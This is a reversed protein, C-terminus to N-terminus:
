QMLVMVPIKGRGSSLSGLAKGIITGGAQGRDLVKQAHGKTPSTTLLDGARIPAIDADVKCHAYAGLTVMRGLQGEGVSTSGDGADDDGALDQLPHGAEGETAKKKGRKPKPSEQAEAHPLDGGRTVSDVIGCVRTDYARDCLDVEPIPITNGTAWFRTADSEGIIVVDGQEVEDGAMNVFHDYVYGPKAGSRIRLNNVDMDGKPTITVIDGVAETWLRANGDQNYWVYRDGAALANMDQNAPLTRRAFSIEAGSGSAEIRGVIDGARPLPGVAIRTAVHFQVAPDIGIGTRGGGRNIVVDNGLENIRLPKSGHSQVWSYETNYGLRLNSANTPGLILTNGGSDQPGNIVQLKAEPTTTAIGVRGDRLVNFADSAGAVWLALRGGGRNCLEVRNDIGDKTAVRLFANDSTSEFLGVAGDTRVHLVHTPANTGIGVPGGVLWSNGATSLRVAAPDGQHGIEFSHEGASNHTQWRLMGDAPSWLKKDAANQNAFGIGDTINLQQQMKDTGIAVRGDKYAIGGAVGVWPSPTGAQVVAAGAASTIKGDVVLDGAVHLRAQPNPTGLGVRGTGDQVMFHVARGDGLWFDRHGATRGGGVGMDWNSQGGEKTFLMRVGDGPAEIKLPADAAVVHLPATPAPTGVGVKGDRTINFADGAGAVWLALRGGGRNALEVRNDIGDKAAVRLFANDSSSEFLGVAGDARVHFAHSPAATGIGVPGRVFSISGGGGDAWQSAAGGAPAAAPASGAVGKAARIEGDVVLDGAVHLRAAPANTGVGVNGGNLWSNGSTSLRVAAPDGQHGVEFSHEGAANHTQWRLMGDAPSWLKKDAANQNAFGIGDTITLQQPVKDTGIAVRGERYSIGGGIGVWPSTPAPPASGPAAGAIGRAARIEGDVVLDGAVHLRGTPANTGIGTNGHPDISLLDGVADTYLRLRRTDNYWVFRDGAQGAFGQQRRDMLTLEATSGSAEIRGQAVGASYPGASLHGAVHVSPAATSLAGDAAAQWPSPAGPASPQGPAAGAIPRTSRIEGDVLLDGVVHLRAQPSATGVGVKGASSAALVVDNGIDNIRLPRSGHSQIWSYGDAYGMRLNAGSTPGIVLANGNSDQPSHVVQLRAEPTLTGVGVSGAYGIGLSVDQWKGGGGAAGSGGALVPVTTGSSARIEGEVLLDGVVHLRAQPTATGLGVFGDRAVTLADGGGATWLALRGGPRNAVAVHNEMGERSAISVFAEPGISEFLAVADDARVHFRKSPYETGIGIRGDRTINLVDGGGATWLSLRGGGRNALEVRNDQGERTALRLFAMSGRSEFLAVADDGSVHLRHTAATTGVGLSGNGAPAVLVDGGADNLRLSQGGGAQIWAHDAAYGLRLGAGEAPGITLGGGTSDQPAGDVHLHRTTVSASAVQGAVRMDGDAVFHGHLEATVPGSAFLRPWQDPSGTSTLTLARVQLDGAKSGANRRLYNGDGNDTKPAGEKTVWVRGLVLQLGANDPPNESREILPAPIWRGFEDSVGDSIPGGPDERFAVTIYVTKGVFPSLDVSQEGPLVIEHGEADYATGEEVTLQQTDPSYRLELGDAVGWTHLLKNHLQRMEMHYAQEDTFEQVSLLQHDFFRLRATPNAM